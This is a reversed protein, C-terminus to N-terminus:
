NLFMQQGPRLNGGVPWGGPPRPIAGGPMPVLGGGGGGAGLAPRPTYPLAPQPAPAPLAPRAAPVPAGGRAAPILFPLANGTDRLAEMLIDGWDGLSGPDFRRYGGQPPGGLDGMFGPAFPRQDNPTVRQEGPRDGPGGGPAAPTPRRGDPQVYPLNEFNYPPDIPTYIGGDPRGPQPRVGGPLNPTQGPTSGGGAGGGGSAGGPGVPINIVEGPFILDVNGSPVSVQNVVELIEANTPRRGLQETLARRSLGWVTDGPVVEYAPM